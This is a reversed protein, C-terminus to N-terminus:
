GFSQPEREQAAAIRREEARIERLQRAAQIEEPTRRRRPIPNVGLEWPNRLRELNREVSRIGNACKYKNKRTIRTYNM